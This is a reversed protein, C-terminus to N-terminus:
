AEDGSISADFLPLDQVANRGRRRKRRGVTDEEAVAEVNLSYDDRGWECKRLVAQPIKKLTINTFRDLNGRWARCCILLTRHPGVDDSLFQLQDSGLNQDTVYLFDSETSRGQMWFVESDPQYRYGELKCMAEALMPGNFQRSVVWNGWKDRELLSPALRLFRFGGGGRWRRSETVGGPDEGDVVKRLRPAIHTMAQDGLEVMVWRRGMKHAVAGTTGSGAFSDLVLDGPDTAAEILFEILGEPKPYPFANTTGFLSRSEETADEYTPLGYADRSLLNKVKKPEGGTKVHNPRFPAKSIVISEGAEVIQLIREASYRWEGRLRFDDANRGDRVELRDLLETIIRGKSMDQPEFVQDPCGFQVSGRPFRIDRVGNGANNIPYKKGSTTTGYTLARARSRDQAYALIYETVSGMSSHLFSPKKKKEWVFTGCYNTRGFTEDLLVKLYASEHDDISVFMMGGPSLLRRLLEVRERMLSLWVSHELGDDYTDFAAGTNYPPDIYVCKVRGTFRAELAKLALLNDGHILLNEFQDSASVRQRARYSFEEQELLIRPELKPRRQKGIWTLELRTKRRTVSPRRPKARTVRAHM